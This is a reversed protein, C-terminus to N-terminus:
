MVRFKREGSETAIEHEEVWDIHIFRDDELEEVLERIHEATGQVQMTVTGDYENRAWGTLELAPALYKVKYRFGVGQVRGHFIFEERIVAM